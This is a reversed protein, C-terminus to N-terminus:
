ENSRLLRKIVKNLAASVVTAALLILLIQQFSAAYQAKLVSLPQHADSLATLHALKGSLFGGLGLSVFFVGMMTSVKNRSALVTVASLGVPSLLLEAVSIVLYALILVWPSVLSEAPSFSCALAILGYALTMLMMALLFKNGTLIGHQAKSLPAQNRAMFGGFVIMGLSQIGVYYPAPFSIGGLQPRVVRAIFLTLSLFMQFYFAWFLVSIVCLLGIVATQRAQEPPDTKISLTLYGLALVVVACFLRDALSPTALVLWSCTWLLAIALATAVLKFVSLNLKDQYDRIAYRRVGLVFVGASLVMSLAASVFAASWGYRQHIVSPLTTGLLIGATLGLYFITFGRERLASGEPYENGLLASINPKLLGSGVTIGALALCLGQGSHLLSLLLYSGFLVLCGFLIALRQGIFHDAIWGGVIPSLYTLATFSGVLAYVQQDPWNLHYALYLAILTQVVYFGYREWMETAFFVGLSKPHQAQHLIM